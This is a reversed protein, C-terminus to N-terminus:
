SFRIAVSFAMFICVIPELLKDFYALMESCLFLFQETAHMGLTAFSGADLWLQSSCYLGVKSISMSDCSGGAPTICGVAPLPEADLVQVLPSSLLVLSALLLEFLM